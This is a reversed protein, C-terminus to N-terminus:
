EAVRLRAADPNHRSTLPERHIRGSGSLSPRISNVKTVSQEKAELQEGGKRNFVCNSEAVSCWRNRQDPSAGSQEIAKVPARVKATLRVAM